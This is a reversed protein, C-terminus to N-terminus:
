KVVSNCFRMIGITGLPVRFLSGTPVYRVRFSSRDAIFQVPLSPFAPTEARCTRECTGSQACNNGTAAAIMALHLDQPFFTGLPLSLFPLPSLRRVQVKTVPEQYHAVGVGSVPSTPFRSGFPDFYSQVRFRSAISRSRLGRRPFRSVSIRQPRTFPQRSCNLKSKDPKCTTDSAYFRLRHFRNRPAISFM